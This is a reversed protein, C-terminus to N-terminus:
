HMFIGTDGITATCGSGVQHPVLERMSSLSVPQRGASVLYRCIRHNMRELCLRCAVANSRGRSLLLACQQHWEGGFGLCWIQKPTSLFPGVPEVTFPM